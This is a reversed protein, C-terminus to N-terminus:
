LRLLGPIPGLSFRLEFACRSDILAKRVQTKAQPLGLQGEPLRGFRRVFKGASTVQIGEAKTAVTTEIIEDAAGRCVLSRRLDRQCIHLIRRCGGARVM